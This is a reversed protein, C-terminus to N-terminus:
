WVMDIVSVLKFNSVRKYRHICVQDCIDHQKSGESDHQVQHSELSILGVAYDLRM